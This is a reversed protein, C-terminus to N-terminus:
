KVLHRVAVNGQLPRHRDRLLTGALRVDTKCFRNWLGRQEMVSVECEHLASICVPTCGCGVTHHLPADSLRNALDVSVDQLAGTRLRPDASCQPGHV